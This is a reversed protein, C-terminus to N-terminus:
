FQGVVAVKEVAPREFLLNQIARPYINEGGRITM